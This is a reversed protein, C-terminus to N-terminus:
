SKESIDSEYGCIECPYSTMDVLVVDYCVIGCVASVKRGISKRSILGSKFSVAKM